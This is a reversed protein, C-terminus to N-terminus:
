YKINFTKVAFELSVVRLTCIIVRLFSLARMYYCVRIYYYLLWAYVIISSLLQIVLPPIISLWHPPEIVKSDVLPYPYVVSSPYNCGHVSIFKRVVYLTWIIIHRKLIAYFVLFHLCACSASCEKTKM